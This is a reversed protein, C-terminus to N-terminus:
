FIEYQLDTIQFGNLISSRFSRAILHQIVSPNISLKGEAEQLYIADISHFISLIQFGVRDRM